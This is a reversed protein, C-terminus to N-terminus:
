MSKPAAPKEQPESGKEKSPARHKKPAAKPYSVPFTELYHSAVWGIVGTRLDRVNSWGTPSQDLFEVKDNFGLSTLVRTGTSPGARLNLGNIAVYYFPPGPTLSVASAPIWGQNSSKLSRVRWWGRNDQDLKEVRDGRTLLELARCNYDACDRLYMTSAAVYFTAPMPSYSLLDSPIWGVAGTRELRTRSWGYDNRDLLEVRDGSFVTAAIPCEYSPCDRLYSTTPSVYYINPPPSYSTPAACASALTLIMLTLLVGKLCHRSKM